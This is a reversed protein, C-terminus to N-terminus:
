SFSAEECALLTPDTANDILYEEHQALTQRKVHEGPVYPGAKFKVLVYDTGDITVDATYIRNLSAGDERPIWVQKVEM